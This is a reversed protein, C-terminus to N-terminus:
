ASLGHDPLPPSPTNKMAEKGIRQQPLVWILPSPVSLEVSQLLFQRPGPLFVDVAAGAKVEAEGLSAWTM